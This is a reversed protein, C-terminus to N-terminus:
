AVGSCDSNDPLVKTVVQGLIVVPVFCLDGAGGLSPEVYGTGFYLLKPLKYNFRTAFLDM